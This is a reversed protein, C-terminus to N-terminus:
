VCSERLTQIECDALLIQSEYRLIVDSNEVECYSLMKSKYRLM